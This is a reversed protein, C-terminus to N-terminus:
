SCKSIIYASIKQGDAALKQGLTALRTQAEGNPNKRLEVIDAFAASLNDLADKVDDPAGDKLADLQADLVKVADEVDSESGTFMKTQADVIKKATDNFKGCDVAIETLSATPSSIRSPDSGADKSKDKDGDGGGCATLAAALALM